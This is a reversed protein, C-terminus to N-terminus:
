GSPPAPLGDSSLVSVLSPPPTNVWSCLRLRRKALKAAADAAGNAERRIWNWDCHIFSAKLRRFEALFTYFRWNSTASDNKICSFLEFCDTEVVIHQFQLSSAFSLGVIAAHAECEVASSLNCPQITAGIFSGNHDRIVVGVGGLGSNAEWAGDINVKVFPSLPPSWHLRPPVGRIFLPAATALDKAQSFEKHLSNAQSLVLLPSPMLGRFIAQCRAKWIEWSCFMFHSIGWNLHDDNTFIGSLLRSLWSDLTSISALDPSYGLPSGFWVARTWPCLLLLHEVTEPFLGCLRCLPSLSLKRKFLNAGTPISNTIARWMFNRIKPTVRAGWLVRWIEKNVVHSSSARDMSVLPSDGIAHCYGSKVSYDGSKVEPWVLRDCTSPTGIPTARIKAAECSPIFPEIHSINWTGNDANIIDSVLLPTFRNNTPIPSLKGSGNGTLWRDKWVDVLLGNGIQWRAGSAIIERGVLLSNWAWSARGGKKADLFSCNPFYRAKLIRAWLANPNRLLRWCQKALLSKNFTHLDRFGMGGAAKPTCLKRWSHWHIKGHDEDQGWWFRALDANITNCLTTPLLFCSMPYAPVATAVSKILVERGAQSLLNLKWGAIKHNIRDRVYALADVKSRGWFTPLGLYPGPDCTAPIGFISGCGIRTGHDTNPSFYLSSKLPNVEQGSAACYDDLISKLAICNSPRAQLFFLSDDAFFLHSLGPCGRSLKIGQIVGNDSAKIINLSLVESVLLFLYPSLPDGQRLGRSPFFRNGPSGNLVLSFSVSKICLMVLSCWRNDFGFKRLTDELFDWEVRDYAKNMDLKLGLEFSKRSSKLRLYHFAEHALLINDQIQRGPVFANQHMSILNPLLPKLRNAMLKSLIKYSNNCLSIPRFHNVSTPKPVKPILVIHTHNLLDLRCNGSFFESVLDNISRQVIDWFHDYFLGPFGDPGPAKLSGLQKVATRVEDVSYPATLRTNNADSVKGQVCHLIGGWNRPGRSKFLDEFFHCFEDGVAQDGIICAGESNLLSEIRNRQRRHLTSLHFFKTNADGAQLWNLRSRQKWYIEERSWLCSLEDWIAAEQHRFSDGHVGLQLVELEKTLYNIRSLNNPFKRRSWNQLEYRCAGLKASLVSLSDGNQDCNWGRQIITGCEPDDAWYAEFKFDKGKKRVRPTLFLVLPSHDSGIRPEVHVCSDPWGHLWLANVLGRDLKTRILSAPDQRNEWTFFQGTSRLELLGNTDMFSRLFRTRCWPWPNGGEKEDNGLIENFDGICLWPPTNVLEFSALNDWFLPKEERYPPGYMWSVRYHTGDDRNMVITDILNKDSTLIEVDVEPRWWLTLGGALGVPDVCFGKFYGLKRRLMAVRHCNQKTEMLFVMSPAHSRILERLKQVTLARGLGQCNWSLHSM